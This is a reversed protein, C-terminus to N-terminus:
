QTLGNSMIMVQKKERKTESGKVCQKCSCVYECVSSLSPLSPPPPMPYFLSHTLFFSPSLQMLIHGKLKIRRLCSM